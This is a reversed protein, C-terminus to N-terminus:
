KLDRLKIEETDGTAPDTVTVMDDGQHRTSADTVMVNTPRDGQDKRDTFWGM